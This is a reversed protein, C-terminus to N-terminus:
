RREVLANAASTNAYNFGNGRTFIDSLSGGENGFAVARSGIDSLLARKLAWSGGIPGLVGLPNSVLGAGLAAPIAMATTGSPNAAKGADKLANSLTLADEFKGSMSTPGPSPDAQRIIERVGPDAKAWNTSFTAPSFQDGAANQQGPTARGTSEIYDGLFQRYQPSQFGMDKNGAGALQALVNFKEVSRNPGNHLWNYASDATPKDVLRDATKLYGGKDYGGDRNHAFSWDTMLDGFEKGAGADEAAGQLQTTTAGYVKKKEGANMPISGNTGYGIGSRWNRLPGYLAMTKDPLKAKLAANLGSLTSQHDAADQSFIDMTDQLNQQEAGSIGRASNDFMMEDIRGMKGNIDQLSSKEANIDALDQPFNESLYRGHLNQLGRQDAEITSMLSESGANSHMNALLDSVPGVQVPTDPGITYELADDRRGLNDLARASGQRAIEQIQSGVDFPTVGASRDGAKWVDPNAPFSKPKVPENNELRTPESVVALPTPEQGGSSRMLGASDRLINGTADVQGTRTNAIESGVVPILGMANEL